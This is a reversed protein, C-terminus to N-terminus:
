TITPIMSSNTPILCDNWLGSSLSTSSSPNTSHNTTNNPIIPVSFSDEIDLLSDVPVNSPIATDILPTDYDGLLDESQFSIIENSNTNNHLGDKSSNSAYHRWRLNLEAAQKLGEETLAHDRDLMGSINIKSQAENWKSEGHRLIFFTKMLPPQKNMFCCHVCIAFSSPTTKCVSESPWIPFFREEEDLDSIRIEARGLLIPESSSHHVEVHKSDAPPSM